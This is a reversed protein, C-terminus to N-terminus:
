IHSLKNATCLININTHICKKFVVDTVTVCEITQADNESGKKLHHRERWGRRLSREEPRLFVASWRACSAPSCLHQTGDRGSRLILPGAAAPAAEVRARMSKDQRRQRKPQLLRQQWSTALGGHVCALHIKLQLTWTITLMIIVTTSM